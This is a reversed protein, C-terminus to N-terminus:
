IIKYKDETILDSPNYTGYDKITNFLTDREVPHKRAQKILKVLDNTTMKPKKEEAGALSYIKTSDDITGDLDDVGMSLSMQATERGIMPWYAKLHPFNNMFIRAFAYTRLDDLQTTEPVHSMENMGGNRFKLPIFVNFGGTENQLNRLTAMHHIRHEPKEIHGYLMTANSPIGLEHATKHIELWRDTSCKDACIKSRIEHHFIEAGGGPISDLGANIMKTLGEKISVKAKRFMYDYEVATFGKIHIGPIINRIEHLLDVFFDLNLKPHVGGVIHVETVPQDKYSKVINLMEEKNLFWADQKQKLSRSYACFKCSFVCINTPEIHFNRNFYVIDGHMKQKILTALSALFGTEANKYLYLGEQEDLAINDYAKIAIEKLKANVNKVIFSLTQNSNNTCPAM